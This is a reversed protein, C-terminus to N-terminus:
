VLRQIFNISECGLKLLSGQVSMVIMDRSLWKHAWPGAMGSYCLSCYWGVAPGTSGSYQGCHNPSYWGPRWFCLCFVILPIGAGLCCSCKLLSWWEASYTSCGRKKERPKEPLCQPQQVCASDQWRGMRKEGWNWEMIENWHRTYYVPYPSHLTICINIVLYVECLRQRRVGGNCISVACILQMAAGSVEILGNVVIWCLM